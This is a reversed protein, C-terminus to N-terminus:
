KVDRVARVNMGFSRYYNFINGYGSDDLGYYYANPCYDNRLESTWYHCQAKHWTVVGSADTSIEAEADNLNNSRYYGAAPLFVIEEGTARSSVQYGAVGNRVMKRWVGKLRLEDWDARTPMRWGDGLNVTAADDGPELVASGSAGAPFNYKTMAPEPTSYRYNDWDYHTKGETEGWAFYTGAEEPASAGVNCSAWEVKLPQLSPDEYDHAGCSLLVQSAMILFAIKKEMRNM